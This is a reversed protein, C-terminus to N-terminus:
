EAAPPSPPSVRAAGVRASLNTPDAQLARNYASRADPFRGIEEFIEAQLTYSRSLWPRDSRALSISRSVFAVAQKYDKQLYNVHALYYYGYANSPDISVARELAETARDFQHQDALVRGQEILRLAAAQNAPTGSKIRPLLSESKPISAVVAPEETPAQKPAPTPVEEQMMGTDDPIVVGRPAIESERLAPSATPTPVASPTLPPRQQWAANFDNPPQRQPRPRRVPETAACAALAVSFFTIALLRATMWKM